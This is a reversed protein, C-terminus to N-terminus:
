IILHHARKLELCDNSELLKAVTVAKEQPFGLEILVNTARTACAACRRMVVSKDGITTGEGLLAIEHLYALTVLVDRRGGELVVLRKMNKVVDFTHTLVDKRGRLERCVRDKLREEFEDYTKYQSLM